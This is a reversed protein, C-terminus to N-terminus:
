CVSSRHHAEGGKASDDEVEGCRAYEIQTAIKTIAAPRRNPATVCIDALILCQPNDSHVM